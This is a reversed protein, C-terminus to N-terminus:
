QEKLLNNLVVVDAVDIKEDGNLDAAEKNFNEPNEGMIFRIIDDVDKKTIEGDSDVDGLKVAGAGEEVFFFDKWQDASQYAALAGEPVFLTCEWKNIDSLAQSGCVPPTQAKSILQNLSICDSFAEQGISKLKTGFEFKKLNTCGSFAWDGITAIDDGISVNQLNTCGYFENTSIETEKDAIKITRLTTNGYFPSYGCSSSTNYSIKGGIYVEDLQCSSFLPYSGDSGLTLIKDRDAVVVKKLSTCGSFSYDKISTVSKPIIIDKLATCNEFARNGITTVSEGIAVIQLNSCGSFENENIKKDSIHVVRLTSNGYFPSYGRDSTTPYSINGGIYIEDLPCSAFMPNNGNSGLELTEERDSIVVKKLNECGLFVNNGISIVSKPIIITPM